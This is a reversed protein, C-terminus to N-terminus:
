VIKSSVTYGFYTKIKRFIMHLGFTQLYDVTSTNQSLHKEFPGMQLTFRVSNGLRNQRVCTKCVILVSRPFTNEKANYCRFTNISFRSFPFYTNKMNQM